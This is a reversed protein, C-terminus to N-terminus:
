DVCIADAQGEHMFCFCGFPTRFESCQGAVVGDCLADPFLDTICEGECERSDTCPVGSDSTRLNCSPCESIGWVQWVGNAAECSERGTEECESDCPNRDYIVEACVDNSCVYKM